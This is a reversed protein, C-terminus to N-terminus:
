LASFMGLLPTWRALQVHLFRCYATYGFWGSFKTHTCSKCSHVRAVRCMRPPDYTVQPGLSPIGWKLPLLGKRPSSWISCVRVIEDYILYIFNIFYIHSHVTWIPGDRFLSYYFYILSRPLVGVGHLVTRWSVRVTAWSSLFDGAVPIYSWGTWLVTGLNLRVALPRTWNWAPWSAIQPSHLLLSIPKEAFYMCRIKGQWYRDVLAGYERTGDSVSCVPGLRTM